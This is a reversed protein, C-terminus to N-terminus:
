RGGGALFAIAGLVALVTVGFCAWATVRRLVSVQGRADRAGPASLARVGVAFLAPLGAGVLTGVVLINALAGWEVYGSM